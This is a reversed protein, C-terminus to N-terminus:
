VGRFYIFPNLSKGPICNEQCLTIATIDMVSLGRSTVEKYSVHDLLSADPNKKPDSDFVGDVNTAKLVVQANVIWPM